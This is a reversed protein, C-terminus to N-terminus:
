GGVGPDDVLERLRRISRGLASAADLRNENLIEELKEIIADVKAGLENAATIDLQDVEDELTEIAKSAAAREDGDQSNARVQEQAAIEAELAERADDHNMDDEM